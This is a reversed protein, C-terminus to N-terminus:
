TILSFSLVKDSVVSKLCDDVYINRNVTCVTEPDFCTKNDKATKKLAFNACSPSSVGGFLHVAVMLKEPSVAEQRFRVLVGM